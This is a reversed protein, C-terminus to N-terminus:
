LASDLTVLVDIDGTEPLEFSTEVTTIAPCLQQIESPQENWPDGWQECYVNGNDEQWCNGADPDDVPNTSNIITRFTYTGPSAPQLVGGLETWWPEEDDWEGCDLPVSFTVLKRGDWIVETNDGPLLPKYMSVHPPPPAPCECGCQWGIHLSIEQITWGDCYMGEGALYLIEASSNALTFTVMQHSPIAQPSPPGDPEIDEWPLDEVVDFGDELDADFGGLDLNVLDEAVNQDQKGTDWALPIDLPNTTNGEGTGADLGTDDSATRGTDGSSYFGDGASTSCAVAFAIAIVLFVRNM